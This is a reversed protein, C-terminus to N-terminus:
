GWAVSCPYVTHMPTKYEGGATPRRGRRHLHVFRARTGSSSRWPRRPAHLRQHLAENTNPPYSQHRNNFPASNFSPLCLLSPTHTHTHANHEHLPVGYHPQGPPYEGPYPPLGQLGTQYGGGRRHGGRRRRMADPSPEKKFCLMDGVPGLLPGIEAARHEPKTSWHGPRPFASCPTDDVTPAFTSQTTPTTAM